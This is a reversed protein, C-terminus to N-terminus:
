LQLLQQRPPLPLRSVVPQYFAPSYHTGAMFAALKGALEAPLSDGTDEHRCLLQLISADMVLTEFLTSPLELLEVPLWTAHLHYAPAAAQQQAEQLPATCDAPQVDSSSHCSSSGPSSSSSSRSLIFNVAHGMEHCLEWLGLAVQSHQGHLVGGSQLGLAVAAGSGGGGAGSGGSSSSSSSSPGQQGEACSHKSHQQQSNPCALFTYNRGCLLLQAAYGANLDLYVTGLIADSQGSCGDSSSGSSSSSGSASSSSSSSGNSCSSGTGSSDTAANHDADVGHAKRCLELVLVRDAWVEDPQPNRQVLRLGLLLQLVRDLGALVSSLQLYPQLRQLDHHSLMGDQEQLLRPMLVCCAALPTSLKPFQVPLMFEGHFLVESARHLIWHVSWVCSGSHPASVLVCCISVKFALHAISSSMADQQPGQKGRQQQQQQQLQAVPRDAAPQLVEALRQCFARAATPSGLLSHQLVFDAYSDFGHM